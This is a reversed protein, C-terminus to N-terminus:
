PAPLRAALEQALHRRALALVGAGGQAVFPRLRRDDGRSEEALWLAVPLAGWKKRFPGTSLGATLAAEEAPTARALAALREVLIPELEALTDRALLTLAGGPGVWSESLSRLNGLGERAMAWLALELPTSSPQPHARAWRWHLVHTYEHAFFRDLRAPNAPEAAAGYARVLASLDFYVVEGGLGFGDEGHQHGVVLAVRAPACLGEFPVCLEPVRVEWSPLRSRLLALWAAEEEALPCPDWAPKTGTHTEVAARWEPTATGDPEFGLRLELRGPSACALLFLAGALPALPLRFPSRSPWTLMPRAQAPGDPANRAPATVTGIAAPLIAGPLVDM